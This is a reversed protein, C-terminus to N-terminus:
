HADWRKLADIFLLAPVEQDSYLGQTANAGLRIACWYVVRKPLMWVLKIILEEIM